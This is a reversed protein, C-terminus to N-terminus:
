PLHPLCRVVFEQNSNRRYIEVLYQLCIFGPMQMAGLLTGDIKTMVDLDEQGKETLLNDKALPINLDAFISKVIDLITFRDQQQLRTARLEKEVVGLAAKVRENDQFYAQQERATRLTLTYVHGLTKPLDALKLRKRKM